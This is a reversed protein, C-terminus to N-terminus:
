RGSEVLQRLVLDGDGAADDDLDPGISYVVSATEDAFFRLPADGYPDNPIRALYEPVLENLHRPPTGQEVTFARIALRAILLRRFTDDRKQISQFSHLDSTFWPPRNFLEDMASPLRATWGFVVQTWLDDRQVIESVPERKADVSLLQATTARCVSPDLKPLLRELEHTGAREISTAVLFHVVVGGRSVEHAFCISDVCSQAAQEYEKSAVYSFAEAQFTRGIQRTDQTWEMEKDYWEWGEKWVLPTQCELELGKRVLSLVTPHDKVFQLVVVPTDSEVDPVRVSRLLKGAQAFQTHGNPNPLETLPIALPIALRYYFFGGLLMAALTLSAATCRVARMKWLPMVVGGRSAVIIALTCFALIVGFVANCVTLTGTSHVGPFMIDFEFFSIFHWTTTAAVLTTVLVSLRLLKRKEALAYWSASLVISSSAISSVIQSVIDINDDVAVVGVGISAAILAMAGLLSRLTFTSAGKPPSDADHRTRWWRVVTLVALVEVAMFLFYIIPPFAKTPLLLWAFAIPSAARYFWNIRALGIVAVCALGVGVLLGLIMAEALVEGDVEM